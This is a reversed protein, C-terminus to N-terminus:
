SVLKKWSEFEDKQLLLSKYCAKALRAYQEFLGNDDRHYLMMRRINDAFAVSTHIIRHKLHEPGDLEDISNVNFLLYVPSTNWNRTWFYMREVHRSKYTRRELYKDWNPKRNFLRKLISRSNYIFILLAIIVLIELLIKPTNM